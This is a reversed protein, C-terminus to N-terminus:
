YDYSLKLGYTRPPAYYGLVSGTVEYEAVRVAENEVNNVYAELSVRGSADTYTLRLDTKTYAGQLDWPKNFARLYSESQYYFSVGPTLRAGNPLEFDHRYSARATFDPSRILQNGSLDLPNSNTRDLVSDIANKYDDYRARSVSVFGSLYDHDTVQWVAELEAGHISAKAANTTVNATVGPSTFVVQQVQLDTYDMYFLTGNLTVAGGFLRNKSGIEYNTVKEPEVVPLGANSLRGQKFGTSVSGYLLSTPSLDYDAGIRYSTGEWSRPVQNAPNSRICQSTPTYLPLGIPCIVTAYDPNEAHDHSYRLGGTLRLDDTLSYTVQGFVGLSKQSFDPHPFHLSPPLPSRNEYQNIVLDGRDHEYIYNVGLVGKIRNSAYRLDLEHSTSWQQDGFRVDAIRDAIGDDDSYTSSRVRGYGAIYALTTSDSVAFEMNSRLNFIKVDLQGDQGATVPRKYVGYGDGVSVRTGAVPISIGLNPSGKDQFGDAQLLWNFRDNPTWLLSVRAATQDARFYNHATTGLTDIYGDDRNRTLSGRIALTDTIPLNVMAHATVADRNGFAIDAKADFTHTPRATIINVNGATANRGYLTGQPGRLIEVRELDYFTANLGQTRTVYVGDVHVSVAPNGSFADVNNSTVGRVSIDVSGNAGNNGIQVSPAQTALGSVETVGARELGESSLASVAIPTTQVTSRYKSATVIVDELVSTEPDSAPTSQLPTSQAQAAGSGALGLAAALVWPAAHAGLIRVRRISTHSTHNM